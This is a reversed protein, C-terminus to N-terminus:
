QSPVEEGQPVGGATVTEGVVFSAAPSALFRAVDSIEESVGIRRDVEERDIDDASVGM